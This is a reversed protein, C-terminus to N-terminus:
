QVQNAKEALSVVSVNIPTFNPSGITIQTPESAKIFKRKTPTPSQQHMCTNTSSTTDKSPHNVAEAPQNQRETDEALKMNALMDIMSKPIPSFQGGSTSKMPNSNFRKDRNENIRKGYINSRLWPGRPNVTGEPLISDMNSCNDETHGVIGCRFCFMPLNEYRFDVWNIGDRTNGIFMGPRIPENIDLCVRIKVIRAKQPYDYLGSDMVKGLQSGLHKGMNVTKCHIPLGWIQIWAPVHHFDINNPSIHRDWLQVMFWSNRVIWPNGKIVRQIDAEMDMNIHYFGGEIETVSFGAPNGWIGQLSNQLASKLIPKNSLIKGILSNSCQDIGEQIHEEKYMCFPEEKEVHQPSDQHNSEQTKRPTEQNNRPQEQHSQSQHYSQNTDQQLNPSNYPLYNSSHHHQITPTPGMFEPINISRNSPIIHHDNTKQVKSPRKSTEGAFTNCNQNNNHHPPNNIPSSDMQSEMASPTSLHLVM